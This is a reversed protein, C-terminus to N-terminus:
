IVARIAQAADQLAPLLKELFSDNPYAQTQFTMSLAGACRGQRDRLAVALGRLGVNLYQDTSWYGLERAASVSERFRDADTITHPTFTGFRHKELWAELRAPGFTSLIV